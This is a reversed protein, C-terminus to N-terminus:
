DVPEPSPELQVRRGRDVLRLLGRGAVLDRIGDGAMEARWGDDLRSPRGNVLARVDDRTALLRAEIREGAAVQATWAALLAVSADLAADDDHKPPLRLEARPMERGAAVAELVANVVAKPLSEAGRLDQLERATRPPRAAVGALVLESLVFRTPRDTEQARRERWAAVAQAVTAHEGRLSRSGKIRWWATDPDPDRTATTRLVDAEADAWETRGLEALRERLAATLPLLHEVDSAAYRRAGASLPRRTWDALQEKKDLRVGILNSVLSLLSPLGLGVFGAALQTDFLAHPRAGCARELIPLDAGGAHTVMTGPGELVERLPEVDCALADVLAVGGPWSIQVLCLRPHYTREAVFETDLGYEPESRLAAVVDLVGQDDDVWRASDDSM